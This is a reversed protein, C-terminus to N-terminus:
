ETYEVISCPPAIECSTFPTVHDIEDGLRAGAVRTICDAKEFFPESDVAGILLENSM